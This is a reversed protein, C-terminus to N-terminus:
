LVEKCVPFKEIGLACAKLHVLDAHLYPDLSLPDSHGLIQSIVPRPVGSGLFSTAVNHRFLHSGRRDGKGQRVGAKRYIKNAINKGGSATLPYHPRPKSLFLHNDSSQPRERSLYDWIANGVTTSLPLLLPQGTKKQSIRIEETEWDISSLKMSVIDSTRMGTYFMLKLFARDRLSLASREDHLIKRIAELEDSTLFQINKRRRRLTPLYALITGCEREKWATTIKFFTALKQRYGACKSVNGEEDLFFSLVDRESICELRTIGKLQMAYLFSSARSAIDYISREKLNLLHDSAKFFDVVERYEPVLQHYFGRRILPNRRRRRNPVEDHYDFQQITCFIVRLERKSYESEITRIRAHYADQYSQWSSNENQLVWLISSRIKAIYTSNYGDSELYGLLEEYRERLNKTIM